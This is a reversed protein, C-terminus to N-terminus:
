ELEVDIETDFVRVAPGSLFADGKGPWEVVLRGGPVDVQVPSLVLERHVAAAASAVAGTGCAMTAGVGREYHRVLLRQPGAKVAVHVNIGAPFQGTGILRDAAAPLDIDDLGMEFFVIHPNGVWVCLADDHPLSMEEIRPNGINVRVEFPERSIISTKVAGSSTELVLDDGAGCESLYRAVCRAGNGCMEARSGDANFVSMRADRHDSESIVLLGDAGVSGRRNCVAKALLPLNSIRPIREDLVIFDNYSGHMKTVPVASM